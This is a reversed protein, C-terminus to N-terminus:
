LETAQRSVGIGGIEPNAELKAPKKYCDEAPDLVSPMISQAVFTTMFSQWFSRVEFSPCHLHMYAECEVANYWLRSLCDQAM